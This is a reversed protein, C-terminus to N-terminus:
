CQALHIKYETAYMPVAIPMPKTTPTTKAPNPTRFQRRLFADLIATYKSVLRVVLRYVAGDM